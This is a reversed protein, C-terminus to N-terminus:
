KVTVALLKLNNDGTMEDLSGDPNASGLVSGPGSGNGRVQVRFVGVCERVADEM